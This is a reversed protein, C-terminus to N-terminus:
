RNQAPPASDDPPGELPVVKVPVVGRELMGLRRAIRPSVDIIRGDIYPGRDRIQVTERKGNELNIVEAWTGLALTRSAAFNSEPDFPTGDAMIQGSFHEAYYSAMGSASAPAADRTQDTGDRGDDTGSTAAPVGGLLMAAILALVHLASNSTAWM